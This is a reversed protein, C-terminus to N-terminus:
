EYRMARYVYGGYPTLLIQWDGLANEILNAIGRDILETYDSAYRADNASLFPNSSDLASYTGAEGLYALAVREANGLGQAEASAKAKLSQERMIDWTWEFHKMRELQEKHFQYLCLRGGVIWRLTIQQFGEAFVEVIDPLPLATEEIARLSPAVVETQVKQILDEM